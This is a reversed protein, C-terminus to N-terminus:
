EGKERKTHQSICRKLFFFLVLPYPQALRASLVFKFRYPITFFTLYILLFYINIKQFAVPMEKQKRVKTSLNSNIYIAGERTDNLLNAVVNKEGPHYDMM